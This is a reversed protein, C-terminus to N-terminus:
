DHVHALRHVFDDAQQALMGAITPHYVTKGATLLLRQLQKIETEPEAYGRGNTELTRAFQARHHGRHGVIRQHELRIRRILGAGRMTSLEVLGTIDELM